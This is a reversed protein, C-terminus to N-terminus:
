RCTRLTHLGYADADAPRRARACCRSARRRRRARECAHSAERPRVAAPAAEGDAAAAPHARAATPTPVPAPGGCAPAPTKTPARPAFAAPGRAARGVRRRPPVVPSCPRPSVAAPPSGSLLLPEYAKPQDRRGSGAPRHAPVLCRCANTALARASATRPVVGGPALDGLQRRIGQDCLLSLMSCLSLSPTSCGPCATRGGHKTTQVVELGRSATAADM